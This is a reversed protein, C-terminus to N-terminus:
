LLIIRSGLKFLELHLSSLYRKLEKGRSKHIALELMKEASKSEDPQSFLELYPSCERARMWAIFVICCAFPWAPLICILDHVPINAQRILMQCGKCQRILEEADKLATPWYFGTCFTKGM